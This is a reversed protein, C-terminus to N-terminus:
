RLFWSYRAEEFAIPRTPSSRRPWNSAEPRGSRRINCLNVHANFREPSRERYHPLMTTIRAALDFLETRSLPMLETLSRVRITEEMTEAAGIAAKQRFTKAVSVAAANGAVPVFLLLTEASAAM